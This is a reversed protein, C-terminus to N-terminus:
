SCKLKKNAIEIARQLAEGTLISFGPIIQAELIGEMNTCEKEGILEQDRYIAVDYGNFCAELCIERGDELVKSFVHGFSGAIGERKFDGIKLEEM